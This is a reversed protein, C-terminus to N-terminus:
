MAPLEGDLMRDLKLCASHWHNRVMKESVGMLDGIEQNTWGHYFKLGVVEREKAPLRGVAEHFDCWRQLEEVPEGADPAAAIPDNGDTTSQGDRPALLRPARVGRYHRALDLLSNRVCTAAYSYFERVSAPQSSGSEISRLINMLVRQFVDDTEEWRRVNAFQRLMKRALCEVRHGVRRVFEDRAPADGGRIRDILLHLQTTHLDSEDSEV